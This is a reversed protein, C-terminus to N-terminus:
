LNDLFSLDTIVKNDKNEKKIKTNKKTNINTVKANNNTDVFGIQTITTKCEQQKSEIKSVMFPRIFEKAQKDTIFYAQFEVKKAGVKLIGNGKGKLSEAGEADLAIKSNNSDEVKFVIRNNINAKVVSDIIDSSPRQTTIFIYCGSARSIAILQKLLKMATNSKDELLMSIEEIFLVQYKLKKVGQLKNYEFINTVNKQMFLKYRKKTESLLEEIVRTTNEVDTVFQKVQKSMRFLNLEVFKLDCLYLELEFPKYNCILNTLIGKTCVSKGSGTTGVIFSHPNEKLELQEIGELSLGIPIVIGENKVRTHLKFPINDQLTNEVTEILLYKSNEIYVRVSYGIAYPLSEKISKLQRNTIGMPLTFKYVTGKTSKYKTIFIPYLITDGDKVSINAIKFYEKFDFKNGNIAKSILKYTMTVTDFLANFVPELINDNGM